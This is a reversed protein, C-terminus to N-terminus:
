NPIPAKFQAAKEPKQMATYLKVLAATATTTRSHDAGFREVRIAHAKVLHPEADSFARLDLLTVGLEFHLLARYIDNTAIRSPQRTLEARLVSEARRLDGSLRLTRGFSAQLFANDAHEVGYASAFRPLALEYLEIAETYRGAENYVSATNVMTRVVPPADAGLKAKRGALVENLLELAADLKKTRMLVSALNEKGTLTTPHDPGLVLSLTRSAETYLPVAETIRDARYYQSALDNTVKATIVHEAGYERRAIELALKIIREAEAFEGVATHIEAVTQLTDLLKPSETGFQRELVARARTAYHRAEEYMSQKGLLEALRTMARATLEHEEGYLTRYLNISENAYQTAQAYDGKTQHLETLMEFSEAVDKHTGLLNRRVSLADSILKDAADLQGLRMYSTGITNKVAAGIVPQDKFEVDAKTAANALVERISIDKGTQWPDASGLTEQLFANISNAKAAEATARDREKAIRQAQVITVVIFSVILLALVAAFATGLQHRRVFKRFRYGATPPRAQLPEHNLYRDIDLALEHPSTYRREREKELAKMVIWDLDGRLEKRLAQVEVGRSQAIISVREGLRALRASPRTPEQERIARRMEVVALPQAGDAEFPIVGVLLEYLLAGLSYVDSRTDIDIAGLSMQEPSAYAPTGLLTGLETLSHDQAEHTTAKALGFDIVKPLSRGGHTTVLVNSPKLDRHIVGKQHAHQVAECVQKFLELREHVNLNASDCYATIRVGEVYEMVFYPRGADTIGADFVQAIGPHQMLALMQREAQFRAIVQRTDMGAKLLKLAVTRRVPATQQAEWVEGMGGEGIRRILRYAGIMQEAKALTPHSVGPSGSRSSQSTLYGVTELCTDCHSVHLEVSSKSEAPLEGSAFAALVDPPPCHQNMNNEAACSPQAAM